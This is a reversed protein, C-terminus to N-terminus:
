KKQGPRYRPFAASRMYGTDFIDDDDHKRSQRPSSDVYEKEESEKGLENNEVTQLRAKGPDGNTSGYSKSGPEDTKGKQRNLDKTAM